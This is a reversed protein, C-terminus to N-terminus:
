GLATTGNPRSFASRGEEAPRADLSWVFQQLLDAAASPELIVKYVGPDIDKADQWATCKESARLIAMQSDLQGMSHSARKNWGSSKGDATRMTLSFTNRTHQDAVFLGKSNRYANNYVGSELFGATEFSHATAERIAAQAIKSREEATWDYDTSRADFASSRLYNQKATLPAMLEENEPALSAIEEARAMARRLGDDSLDNTSVTGARKGNVATITASTNESAGSTSVTNAAFRLNAEHNSEVSVEAWESKSFGLIKKSLGELEDLDLIM